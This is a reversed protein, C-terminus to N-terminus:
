YYYHNVLVRIIGTDSFTIPFNSDNILM